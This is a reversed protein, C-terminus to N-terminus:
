CFQPNTGTPGNPDCMRIQGGPSVIIRMPRRNTYSNETSIDIKIEKDPNVLRGLPTFAFSDQGAVVTANKSGETGIRGQIFDTDPLVLAPVPAKYESGRYTRVIWNKGTPTKAKTAVNAIVPDADTLVLEVNLNSKVAQAKALQLGNLISEASNRIQLNKIWSMFGPLALTMLIALIAVVIMVEILTFARQTRRSILVLWGKQGGLM